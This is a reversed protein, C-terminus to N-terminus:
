LNREAATLSPDNLWRQWYAYTKVNEHAENECTGNACDDCHNLWYNQISGACKGGNPRHPFPYAPCNCVKSM